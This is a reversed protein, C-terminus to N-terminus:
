VADVRSGEEWWIVKAEVGPGFIVVASPFPAGNEAGGFKLRGRLFRIEGDICYDWWWSTDTRAPLLCVVRAGNIRAERHAKKVWRKIEKGYPPNVWCVGHWEQALGDQEPSFYAWPVKANEATACVDVDFHFEDNLINFLWQPTEWEPTESSYHVALRDPDPAEEPEPKVEGTEQRGRQRLQELVNNIAQLLDNKRMRGETGIQRIVYDELWGFALGKHNAKELFHLPGGAATPLYARVYQELQYIPIYDHPTKDGGTPKALRFRLRDRPDLVYEASGHRVKVGFYFCPGSARRDIAERKDLPRGPWEDVAVVRVADEYGEGRLNVGGAGVYLKGDWEFPRKIRAADAVLHASYSAKVMELTERDVYVLVPEPVPDPFPVPERTDGKAKMAEATQTIHAATLKGNPATAVSQEWVKPQIDPELTSLARAQAENAPTVNTVSELNAVVESASILQRARSAVFGWRERCYEEFTGYNERYLRGDRIRMLATGVEVFTKLSREITAELDVLEEIEDEHLLESTKDERLTLKKM